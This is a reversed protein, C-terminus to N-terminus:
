TEEKLNYRTQDTTYISSNTVHIQKIRYQLYSSRFTIVIIKISKSNNFINFSVIPQLQLYMSHRWVNEPYVDVASDWM